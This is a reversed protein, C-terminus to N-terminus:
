PCAGWGSILALLDATDVSGSGDQDYFPDSTGWAALLALLDVTDITGSGDGDFACDVPCDASPVIVKPFETGSATVFQMGTQTPDPAANADFRFTYATSWDITNGATDTWTVDTPNVTPTWPTNNGHATVEVPDSHYFPAHFDVNTVDVCEPVPFIVESVGNTANMNHVVYEYHWTGDGNDTAKSAVNFRGNNPQSLGAAAAGAFATIAPRFMNPVVSPGQGAYSGLSDQSVINTSTTPFGVERFSANNNRTSGYPTEDHTVYHVEWFYRAGVNQSPDVDDFPVALRGQPLGVNPSNFPHSHTGAGVGGIFYGQPDIESRPGCYTFDGNLTGWYTDACGIGLHNCSTGGICTDCTPESVACFSHKLWNMGIMEFESEDANMRYLNQAIVPHRAAAGSYWEAITPGVNCSTTAGSFVNVTGIGPIVTQGYYPYDSDDNGDRGIRSVAIDIDTSPLGAIGGGGDGGQNASGSSAAEFSPRTDDGAEPVALASLQGILIATGALACSSLLITSKM